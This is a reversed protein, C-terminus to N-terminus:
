LQWRPGTDSTGYTCFLTVVVVSGHGTPEHWTSPSLCPTCSLAAAAAFYFGNQISYMYLLTYVMDAFEPFPNKTKIKQDKASNEPGNRVRTLRIRLGGLLSSPGRVQEAVVKELWMM